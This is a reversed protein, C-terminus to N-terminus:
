AVIPLTLIIQTLRVTDQEYRKLRDGKPLIM